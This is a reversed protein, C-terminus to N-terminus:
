EQDLLDGRRHAPLLRDLRDGPEAHGAGVLEARARHELAQDLPDGVRDLGGRDALGVLDGREARDRLLLAAMAMVSVASCPLTASTVPADRPMPRAIAIASPLRPALTIM